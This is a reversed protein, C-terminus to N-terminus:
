GIINDMFESQQAKFSAKSRGYVLMDFSDSGHTAHQQPVSDRRESSKDKKFGERGQLWQADRMSKILDPCNTRNIRVVPLPTDKEGMMEAFFRYKVEHGPAQGTYIKNVTWGAAQLKEEVQDAWTKSGDAKQGIATHDYYYNVEKRKHPKYYNTFQEIVNALTGPHLVFMQNIINYQGPFPEQGVTMFNISAGYDIAIDLPASRVVDADQLYKNGQYKDFDYGNLEFQQYDFSEYLHIDEDLNPYFGKSNQFVEQNLISTRFEFDSLNRKMQKLYDIGLAHINDLSSAEHYYICKKRLLALNVEHRNITARIRLAQEQTAYKMSESLVNVEYQINIITEVLKPNNLKKKELLWAGRSNTPRDSTFVLSHHEPLHGFLHNNGRNIPLLETNLKQVDLFKAEDGHIWDASIGNSMGHGDQSILQIGSGSIWHIFYKPDLPSHWPRAWGWSKPAFQGIFYHQDRKYGRNEWAKVIAPLTRTLIQQFTAGVNVGLSRPMLFVNKAQKPALIGESKGTGRGWIGYEEHANVIQSRLQPVNLHIDVSGDSM